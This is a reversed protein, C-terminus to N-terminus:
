LHPANHIESQPIPTCRRVRYYDRDQLVALIGLVGAGFMLAAIVWVLPSPKM